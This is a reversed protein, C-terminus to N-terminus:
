EFPRQRHEEVSFHNAILFEFLKVVIKFLRLIEIFKLLIEVLLINPSPTIKHFSRINSIVASFGTM